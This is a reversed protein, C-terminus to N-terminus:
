PNRQHARDHKNRQCHDEPQNQERQVALFPLRLLFHEKLGEAPETSFGWGEAESLAPKRTCLVRSFHPVRIKTAEPPGFAM